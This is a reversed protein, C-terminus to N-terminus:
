SDPSPRTNLTDSPPLSRLSDPPVAPGRDTSDSSSREPVMGQRLYVPMSDTPSPPETWTQATSDAGFAWAGEAGPPPVPGAVPRDRRAPGQDLRRRVRADRLLEGRIPRRAPTWQFGELQFPDPINESNRYYTTQTGGIVSVRRVSGDVFRLEIRDGSTRAAGNLSDNEAALFRIARANPRARIRRLTGKDFYATITEAKLQQIRDLVSDRQAAFGAGRVFM